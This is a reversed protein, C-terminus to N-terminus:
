RDFVFGNQSVEEIKSTSLQCCWFRLLEALSGCTKFKVAVCNQSVDKDFAFCAQSVDVIKSMSTSRMLFSAIRFSKRLKEFNVGEFVFCKQSIEKLFPFNLQRGRVLANESKEVGLVAGAVFLHLWTMCLAASTVCFWRLLGSSRISWFAVRRLFDAGQGGLMESSGTEQVAGAVRFADKIMKASGKWVDWEQWRKQLQRLVWANSASKVVHLIWQAQWASSCGLRLFNSQSRWYKFHKARRRRANKRRRL